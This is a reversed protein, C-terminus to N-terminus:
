NGSLRTMFFARDLCKTLIKLKVVKNGRCNKLERKDTAQTKPIPDFNSKKQSNSELIGVKPREHNELKQISFGLKIIYRRAKLILHKRLKEQVGEAWDKGKFKSRVWNIIELPHTALIVSVKM